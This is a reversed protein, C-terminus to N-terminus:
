SPVGVAASLAASISSATAATAVPATVVADRATCSFPRASRRLAREEAQELALRDGAPRREVLDGGGDDLPQQRLRAPHERHQGALPRGPQVAQEVPEGRAGPADLDFDLVASLRM